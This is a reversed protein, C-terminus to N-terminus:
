NQENEVDGKSQAKALLYEKYADIEANDDKFDVYSEILKVNKNFKKNYQEIWELQCNKFDIYKYNKYESQSEVEGVLLREKKQTETGSIGISELMLNKYNKYLALLEEPSVPLQINFMEFTDNGMKDSVAFPKFNMAKNILSNISTIMKENGKFIAPLKLLEIDKLITNEVNDMLEFYELLWLFPIIDMNNDKVLVVDKFAVKNAITKGNLALLQVYTPRWYYDYEGLPLYRCLVIGFTPSNYFCLKNNFMLATRLVYPPLEPELGEYSFQAIKTEVGNILNKFSIGLGNVQLRDILQKQNMFDYYVRSVDKNSM